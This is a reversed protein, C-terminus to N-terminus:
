VENRTPVCIAVRSWNKKGFVKVGVCLRLDESYAWKGKKINEDLYRKYHIYCNYSGKDNFQM